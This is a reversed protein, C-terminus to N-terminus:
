RVVVTKLTNSAAQFIEDNMLWSYKGARARVSGSPAAAATESTEGQGSVPLAPDRSRRLRRPDTAFETSNLTDAAM